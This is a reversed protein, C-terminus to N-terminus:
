GASDLQRPGSLAALLTGAMVGLADVLVDSWELTSHFIRHELYEIGIGFLLSWAFLLIRGSATRSARAVLFAIVSFALLHGWSHFRGRTHLMAKDVPPLFSLVAIAPIAICALATFVTRQWRASKSSNLNEDPPV